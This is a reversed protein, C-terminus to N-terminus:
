PRPNQTRRRELAERVVQMYDASNNRQVQVINGPHVRRHLVVQDIITSRVGIERARAGWDIFEGLIVDERFPGVREFVARRALMAGVVLGPKVKPHFSMGHDAEVFEHTRGFALDATPDKGLAGDLIALHDPTWLDDSDLFAILDGEAAAVGTNRAAGPGKNPQRILQIRDGFRALAALTEDTSGDDVVIIQADAEVQDLVSDLAFGILPARNYTPIVISLRPM